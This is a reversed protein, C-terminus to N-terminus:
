TMVEQEAGHERGDQVAKTSRGVRLTGPLSVDLGGRQEPAETTSHGEAAHRFLWQSDDFVDIKM